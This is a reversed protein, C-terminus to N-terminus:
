ESRISREPMRSERSASRAGAHIWRPTTWMPAYSHIMNRPGVVNLLEQPYGPHAPDEMADLSVPLRLGSTSATCRRCFSTKDGLHNKGFQGTAYGMGKLATAITVAQAPIRHTCRGPRRYDHRNPDAVRRHHLQRPGGHLEGRTIHYFLMGEAALKDLNPTRGAMMGATTPRRYEV